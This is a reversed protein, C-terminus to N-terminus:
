FWAPPGFWRTLSRPHAEAEVDGVVVGHAAATVPPPVGSGAWTGAASPLAVRVGSCVVTDAACTTARGGVAAHVAALLRLLPRVVVRAALGIADGVDVPASPDANHVVGDVRGVVVGHALPAVPTPVSQM